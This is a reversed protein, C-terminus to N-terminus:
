LSYLMIYMIYTAEVIMDVLRSGSTLASGVVVSLFLSRIPRGRALVVLNWVDKLYLAVLDQFVRGRLKRWSWDRVLKLSFTLFVDIDGWNVKVKIFELQIIEKTKNKNENKYNIVQEYWKACIEM